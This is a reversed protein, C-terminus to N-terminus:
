CPATIASSTQILEIQFSQSFVKLRLIETAIAAASTTATNAVATAAAAVANAAALATTAVGEIYTYNIPNSIYV